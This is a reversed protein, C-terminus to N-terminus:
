KLIKFDDQSSTLHDKIEEILERQSSPAQVLAAHFAERAGALDGRAALIQGLTDGIYAALHPSLELARRAHAEARSLDGRSQLLFLAYNNLTRADEPDLRLATEFLGRAKECNGLHVYVQDGAEIEFDRYPLIIGAEASRNGIILRGEGNFANLSVDQLADRLFFGGAELWIGKVADANFEFQSVSRLPMERGKGKAPPVAQSNEKVVPKEEAFEPHKLATELDAISRPLPYRDEAPLLMTKLGAFLFASIAISASFKGYVMLKM